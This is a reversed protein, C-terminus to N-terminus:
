KFEIEYKLDIGFISEREVNNDVPYDAQTRDLLHRKRNEWIGVLSFNDDLQYEVKVDSTPVERVTDLDDPNAASGLHRSVSTSLRQGWQKKFTVKPIDEFDESEESSSSFNMEVGATEKLAKGVGTLRGAYNGAYNVTQQRMREGSSIRGEDEETTTFGLAILSIIDREPLSPNSEFTINHDESTGQISINIDYQKVQANAVLSVVPNVEQQEPPFRLSASIINFPTDRFKLISDRKFHITGDFYPNDLPGLLKLDGFFEGEVLSNAITADSQFFAHMDWIFASNKKKFLSKPLLYAYRQLSTDPIDDEFEKEVRAQNVHYTGKLLFPFWSGSVEIQADGQTTIGEPVHLTINNATALIKTPLNRWGEVAIQGNAHFQGTTLQGSLDTLIINEESFLVEMKLNNLTHPINKLRADGDNIYASGILQLQDMSGRIDCRLELLGRLDELFPTLFAIMYTDIKGNLSLNLNDKQSNEAHVRFHTNNGTLLFDKISMKGYEFAISTPQKLYLDNKGRQLIVKDLQINGHAMWIWDSNSSIDVQGSVSTEYEQVLAEQNILAFAPAFDWENMKMKIFFPAQAHWPILTELNLTQNELHGNIHVGRSSLTINYYPTAVPLESIHFGEIHGSIKMEPKLVHGQLSINFNNQGFVDLGYDQLTESNELYLNTGKIQVDIQGDPHGVGSLIAIKGLSKHIEVQQSEVEGKQAEVHFIIQDFSEQAIAGQETTINLNYSLQHFQFPGWVKLYAKGEAYVPLPFLYKRQMINRLDALQIKESTVEAELTSSRLDINLDGKYQSDEFHGQINQFSLQGKQYQMTSTFNGIGYDEFWINQAKLDMFVTAYQSNGQTLGTIATQGEIKLDALSKIDKFNLKRTGFSFRFGSKYNVHGSVAGITQGIDLGANIIVERSNITVNGTAIGEKFAAISKQNSSHVLFDSLNLHSGICQIKFPSKFQGKCPLRGQANLQLPPPGIHFDTLLQKLELSKIQIETQLSLLDDFQLITNSLDFHNNKNQITWKTVKLANEQLTGELQLRGLYFRNLQLGHAYARLQSNLPVGKNQKLQASTELIGKTQTIPLEPDFLLAVEHLQKFQLRSRWQLQYQRLCNNFTKEISCHGAFLHLFNSSRGIHLSSLFINERDFHVSTKFTWNANILSALQRKQHHYTFSPSNVFVSWNNNKYDVKLFLDKWNIQKEYHRINLQTDELIVSSIPIDLYQFIKEKDLSSLLSRSEKKVLKKSSKPLIKIALDAGRIRVEKILFYGSFLFSIDLTIHLSDITFDSLYQRIEKQPKVKINYAHFSMTLLNFDINEPIIHIKQDQSQAIIQDIAWSKILPLHYAYLFGMLGFFILLLCFFYYKSHKMGSREM